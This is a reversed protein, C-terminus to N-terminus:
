LPTYRSFIDSIRRTFNDVKEKLGNDRIHLSDIDQSLKKLSIIESSTLPKPVWADRVSMICHKIVESRERSIKNQHPFGSNCYESLKNDLNNVSVICAAISFDRKQTTSYSEPFAAELKFLAGRIAIDTELLPKSELAKVMSEVHKLVVEKYGQHLARVEVQMLLYDIDHSYASANGFVGNHNFGGSRAFGSRELCTEREFCQFVKALEPTQDRRNNKHSFLARLSSPCSRQGQSSSPVSSIQM